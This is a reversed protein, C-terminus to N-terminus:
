LYNSHSIKLISKKIEMVAGKIVVQIKVIM